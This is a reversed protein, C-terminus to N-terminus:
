NVIYLYPSATNPKKDIDKNHNSPSEGNPFNTYACLCKIDIHYSIYFMSLKIVVEM